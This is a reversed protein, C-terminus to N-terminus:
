QIYFFSSIVRKPSSTSFNPGWISPNENWSTPIYILVAAISLAISTGCFVLFQFVTHDMFGAELYIHLRILILTKFLYLCKMNMAAINVFASIHSCGLHGDVLSHIFFIYRICVIFGKAKLFLSLKAAELM